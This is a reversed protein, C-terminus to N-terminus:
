VSLAIAALILEVIWISYVVDKEYVKGKMKKLVSITLHEIGYLKKYPKELSGDELLTAFSEKQMLGRAKLIFEIFYPIFLILATKELDGLIAVIAILAGVSYTLIDGPFLRAPYKNFYLFAMLAFVMTFALIAVWQFGTKWALYGLTSLIIIGMGTGLGNYGEIMNFGNSAGVIAFPVFVLPYIWGFEVVGIFPVFMASEGVNIVIIPIAAMLTLLPKHIQRIGMKWGLIDDILGIIAIILISSLAAMIQLSRETNHFYFTSIAVYILIGLLFGTLVTIGGAEAVETKDIKHIDKGVLGARKARRIWSPTLSFTFIFSVLFCLLLIYEM